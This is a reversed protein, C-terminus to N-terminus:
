ISGIYDKFIGIIRITEIKANDCYVSSQFNTPGPPASDHSPHLQLLSPRGALKGRGKPCGGGRRIM